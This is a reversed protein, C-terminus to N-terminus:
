VISPKHNMNRKHKDFHMVTKLPKIHYKHLYKSKSWPEILFKTDCGNVHEFETKYDMSMSHIKKLKTLKIIIVVLLALEHHVQMM